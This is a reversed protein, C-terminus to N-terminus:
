RPRPPKRSEQATKKVVERAKKPFLRKMVAQDDLERAKPKRRPM